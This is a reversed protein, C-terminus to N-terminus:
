VDKKSVEAALTGLRSLTKSRCEDFGDRYVDSHTHNKDKPVVEERVQEIALLYATRATEELLVKVGEFAPNIAQQGSTALHYEPPMSQRAYRQLEKRQEELFTNFDTM